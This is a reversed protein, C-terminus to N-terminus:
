RPNPEDEEAKKQQQVRAAEEMQEQQAKLSAKFQQEMAKSSETLKQMQETIRQQAIRWSDSGDRTVSGDGGFQNILTELASEYASIQGTLAEDNALAERNGVFSMMLEMGQNSDGFFKTLKQMFGEAPSPLKNVESLLDDLTEINTAITKQIEAQEHKEQSPPNEAEPALEPSDKGSVPDDSVPTVKLAKREVMEERQFRKAAERMDADMQKYAKDPNTMGQVKKLEARALSVEKLAQHTDQGNKSAANIATRAEDLKAQAKTINEPNFGENTRSVIRAMENEYKVRAQSWPELKAEAEKAPEKEPVPKDGRLAGLLSSAVTRQMDSLPRDTTKGKAAKENAQSVKQSTLEQVRGRLAAIREQRETRDGMYNKFTKSDLLKEFKKETKQYDQSTGKSVGGARATETNAATSVSKMEKELPLIRHNMRNFERKDELMERQLQRKADALSLKQIRQMDASAEQKAMEEPALSPADGAVKGDQMQPNGAAAGVGRIEPRAADTPQAKRANENELEKIGRALWESTNRYAGGISDAQLAGRETGPNLRLEELNRRIHEQAGKDTYEKAERLKELAQSRAETGGSKLLAKASSIEASAKRGYDLEGAEKQQKSKLFTEALSKDAWGLAQTVGEGTRVERAAMTTTAGAESGQPDTRVLDPANSAAASKSGDMEPQSDAMEQDPSTPKSGKGGGTASGAETKGLTDAAEARPQNNSPAEQGSAVSQSGQEGVAATGAQGKGSTSDAAPQSGSPIREPPISMFGQGSAPTTGGSNKNPDAVGARAQSALGVMGATAAGAAGAAAIAKLSPNKVANELQAWLNPLAGIVNLSTSAGALEKAANIAVTNFRLALMAVVLFIAVEIINLPFVITGSSPGTLTWDGGYLVWQGGEWITPRWFHTALPTGTYGQMPTWCIPVYLIRWVSAEVIKSFFGFFTFIFIPQFFTNIIQNLWGDFLQRTRSFLITPIFLPALGLLLSRVVLSLMYVWLAELVCRGFLVIGIFVLLTYIAGYPGTFAFGVLTVVMRASLLLTIANDIPAFPASAYLGPVMGIAISNIAGIFYDVGDNFIAVVVSNFMSWSTGAAIMSVLSLKVLRVTIDAINLPVLGLAFYIGYIVVYLTVGGAIIPAAYTAAGAYTTAVWGALATSIYDVIQSAMGSGPAPITIAYQPDTTCVGAPLGQAFALQPLLCLLLALGYRVCRWPLSAGPMM